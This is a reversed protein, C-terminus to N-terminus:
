MKVIGACPDCASYEPNGTGNMVDCPFSQAGINACPDCPECPECYKDSYCFKPKPPCPMGLGYKTQYYERTFEDADSVIFKRGWVSIAAGITLDRDTYFDQDVAGTQLM